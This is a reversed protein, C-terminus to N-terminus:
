LPAALMSHHAPLALPMRAVALGSHLDRVVDILADREEITM